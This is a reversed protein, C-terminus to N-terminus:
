LVMKYEPVVGLAMFTTLTIAIFGKQSFAMLRKRENFFNINGKETILCLSVFTV